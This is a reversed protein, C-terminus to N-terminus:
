SKVALDKNLRLALSSGQHNSFLSVSYQLVNFIEQESIEFSRFEFKQIHFAYECNDSYRKGM